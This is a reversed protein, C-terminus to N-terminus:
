RRFRHPAYHRAGALIAGMGAYTIQSWFVDTGDDHEWMDYDEWVPLWDGWSEGDRSTRVELVLTDSVPGSARWKLM